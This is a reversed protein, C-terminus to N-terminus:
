VVIHMEIIRMILEPKDLHAIIVALLSTYLLLFILMSFDATPFCALLRDDLLIGKRMEVYNGLRQTVASYVFFLPSALLIKIRFSRNKVETKWASLVTAIYNQISEKLTTENM